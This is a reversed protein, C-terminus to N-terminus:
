DACVSLFVDLFIPRSGLLDNNFKIKPLLLFFFATKWVYHPLRRPSSQILGKLKAYKLASPQFTPFKFLHSIPNKMAGDAKTDDGIAQSVRSQRSAVRSMAEAFVTIMRIIGQEGM